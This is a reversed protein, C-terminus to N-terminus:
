FRQIRIMESTQPPFWSAAIFILSSEELHCLCSLYIGNLNHNGYVYCCGFWFSGILLQNDCCVNDGKMNLKKMSHLLLSIHMLDGRKRRTGLKSLLDCFYREEGLILPLLNNSCTRLVVSEQRPCVTEMTFMVIGSRVSFPFFTWNKSGSIRLLEGGILVSSDSIVWGLM